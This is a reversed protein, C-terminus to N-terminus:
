RRETSSIHKTTTWITETSTNQADELLSAAEGHLELAEKDSLNEVSAQAMKSIVDQKVDKMSDM